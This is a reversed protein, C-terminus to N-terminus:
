KGGTIEVAKETLLPQSLSDATLKAKFWAQAGERAEYTITYAAEHYAPITEPGFTLVRAAPSVVPTSQVLGVTTPLEVEVRVNRAAEGGNNKVRITFTGRRGVTMAAPEPETEWVLAAAGQFVTAVEEASRLKRADQASAVIVRRGTTSAKIGFRFAQAEGPELRPVTWVISDRYVHGGNTKMTPRCDAPVTGTVRVNTSPLTGTNRVTIEYRAVAGPDLPGTPGALKVALGPVLVQTRSDATALTGKTTSAHTSTLSDTAHKPTVRYEIVRREGPMLKAFSWEWQNEDPKTRKGGATVAEVEATRDVNEVVRVDEAPVRGANEVTVRVMFAEDRVTQKPATKSVKVVPRNIRTTVAEGHEFRVYALNKVEKTNPGPRLTLEIIRTKGPELTGLSWVLQKAPDSLKQDWVPEAKLPTLSKDAPLPNRVTVAHAAARSTNTVTILYRIDDGPPSDAPVRVQIRVMPAPPDAVSRAAPNPNVSAPTGPDPGAPRTAQAPRVEPDFIPVPQDGLVLPLLKGPEAPTAPEAPLQARAALTAWGMVVVAVLGLTGVAARKRNWVSM